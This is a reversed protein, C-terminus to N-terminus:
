TDTTVTRALQYLTHRMSPRMDRHHPLLVGYAAKFPRLPPVTIEYSHQVLTGDPHASLDYRWTTSDRRSPDLREPVTRFAFAEGPEAAVIECVRSWRAVRFRNHGRFRAGVVPEHPGGALWEVSHCETSRDGTSTVDAIVAYVAEPNAHIVHEVSGGSRWPRAM